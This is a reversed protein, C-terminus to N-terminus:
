MVNTNRYRTRFSTKSLEQITTWTLNQVRQSQGWRGEAM